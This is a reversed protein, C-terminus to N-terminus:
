NTALYKVVKIFKRLFLIYVFRSVSNLFSALVNHTTLTLMEESINEIVQVSYFLCNGIM